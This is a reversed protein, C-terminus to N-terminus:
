GSSRDYVTVSSTPVYEYEHTFRVIIPPPRGASWLSHVPCPPPPLVSMWPKMCSCM